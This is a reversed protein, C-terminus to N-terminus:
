ENLTKYFTKAGPVKLTDDTAIRKRLVVFDMANAHLRPHEIRLTALLNEPLKMKLITHEHAQLVALLCLYQVLTLITIM